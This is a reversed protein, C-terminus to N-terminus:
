RLVEGQPTGIVDLPSGITALRERALHLYRLPAKM